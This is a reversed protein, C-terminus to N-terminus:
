ALAAHLSHGETDRRERSTEEGNPNLGHGPCTPLPTKFARRPGRKGGCPGGGAGHVGQHERLGTQGPSSRNWTRGDPGKRGRSVWGRAPRM